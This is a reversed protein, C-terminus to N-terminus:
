RALYEKRSQQVLYNGSRLQVEIKHRKGDSVEYPPVYGLSYTASLKRAIQEFMAIVDKGEKAYTVKGGSAEALQELRSHIQRQDSLANELLDQPLKDDLNPWVAVFFFPIRSERVSRLAKQYASDAQFDVFQNFTRDGVKVKRLPISSDVGDTLVVVGKRNKVFRVKAIAWKLAEYFLTGNCIPLTRDLNAKRKSKWDLNVEVGSGFSAILTRDQPRRYMDFRTLVETLLPWEELTSDSCDFLLLLDYPSDAPAFNRLVQEQGDEYVRFDDSTLDSIPRGGSDFVGVDVFVARADVKLTYTPDQATVLCASVLVIPISARLACNGATIMKAIANM